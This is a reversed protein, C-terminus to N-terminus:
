KTIRKYIGRFIENFIIGDKDLLEWLQTVTGDSNNFFTIQNYFSKKKGTILDSKLVMNKGILKGKLKLISGANDIWLQNWTNDTVDYYNYSTGKNTSTKSSWNEQITCANPMKVVTNTGILKSKVDYVNWIGIWFDFQKYAVTTCAVKSKDQSYTETYFFVFFTSALVIIAKNM